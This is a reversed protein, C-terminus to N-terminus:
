RGVRFRCPIRREDTRDFCLGRPSIDGAPIVKTWPLVAYECMVGNRQVGLTENHECANVRGNRCSACKGCNTYPNVTVNM